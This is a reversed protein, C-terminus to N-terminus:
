YTWILEQTKEPDNDCHIFSGAIGIRTFGADLLAEILMYRKSSNACHIDAAYGLLHSSTKSAKYGKNMLMRNYSVTRFGSNIIFPFGAIDRALDIKELFDLDMMDGSGQIDPSDFEQLTFWKM